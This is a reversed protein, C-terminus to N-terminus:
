HVSFTASPGGNTCAGIKGASVAAASSWGGATYDGPFVSCSNALNDTGASILSPLLWKVHGDAFAYNSGANHRGTLFTGFVQSGRAAMQTGVWPGTAAKGDAAANGFSNNLVDTGDSAPSSADMWGALWSDAVDATCGTAEFFMITGTAAGLVSGSIPAHTTAIGIGFNSNYAYSVVQGSASSATNISNTGVQIDAAISSVQFTDSPCVFVGRSKLYPYLQGAWGMGYNYYDNGPIALAMCSGQPYSEDYDQVYQLAALGLQKMNSSCSAQRAKERATAFVPFLIAALIAIIAIVVLLEILTFAKRNRVTVTTTM